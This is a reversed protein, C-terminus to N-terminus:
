ISILVSNFDVSKFSGFGFTIASKKQKVTLTCIFNRDIKFLEERDFTLLLDGAKVNDGEKINITFASLPYKDRLLGFNLILSFTENSITLGNHYRSIKKIQGSIPARVENSNPIVGISIGIVNHAINVNNILKSPILTGSFPSLVRNQENFTLFDILAVLKKLM